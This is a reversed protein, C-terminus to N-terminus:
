QSGVLTAHPERQRSEDKRVVNTFKVPDRAESSDQKSKNLIGHNSSDM